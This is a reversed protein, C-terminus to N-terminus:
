NAPTYSYVYAAGKGQTESTGKYTTLPGYLVVKDGVAIQPDTDENWKAGELWNVQYAEFDLDLNDNFNGDTSIWFSGNGYAPDFGGKVLESVIGEVYVNSAIGAKAAAIGGLANFPADLTGIGNEDTTVGNVSYVYAAGKGQTEATGKYVTLPGYLLVEAGVEIQANDETWKNGGLWNVQYAEFDLSLDDNKVGDASIWFSGNGYNAGFGGSVLESVIGKVYVSSTVGANAAAIAEEVTMPLDLTGSLGDQMLEINATYEKKGDTTRAVLTASRPGATNEAVHFTVVNGAVECMTIWSQVEEPISVYLGQGKNTLYAVLDGGEHPLTNSSVGAVYTSDCKILSKNVKIVDVDVLEVVGGYTTKPGEVIVEDGVEIGLKTIAGQKTQGEYKTGYIYVEGTGDNIYFNGYTASEAIKTVVGGVRFATGDMGALVEACTSQVLETKETMQLVNIRQTAGDCNLLVTTENTTKTEAATFTVSANGTGSMPAITLWDPVNEFSWAGHAKVEVTKTGGTAPFAIYSSNVQIESLYSKEDDDDCSVTTFTFSAAAILAALFYKLKM